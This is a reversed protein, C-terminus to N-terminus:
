PLKVGAISDAGPDPLLTRLTMAILPARAPTYETTTVTVLPDVVCVTDSGTEM